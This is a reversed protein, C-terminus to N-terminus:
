HSSLIASQFTQDAIIPRNYFQAFVESSKSWGATRRIEDVSVGKGAAFSTSAHRTSHASFIATNVGAARLEMKIWRGLTQASVSNYPSRVAIFLSNADEPRLEKTREIYSGTLSYICLEPKDLFPKFVLLPQPRGIKSTKLRAPIKIVLSDAFVINSFRIAALTQLRQATTLALLTALKRSVLELSLEEHPYMSALHAIVPSPDWIFDYRPTQPKLTSVGKFFRKILPHSGIENSSILSIAARYTNLSSYSIRGLSSSSLFELVLSFPPSFCNIEKIKCFNWWLRLPRTYQNITAESLSALTADLASAPTGRALFAQRIIQRGGPFDQEM